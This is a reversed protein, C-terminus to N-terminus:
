PRGRARWGAGGRLRVAPTLPRRAGDRRLMCVGSVDSFPRAWHGAWKQMRGVQRSSGDVTGHRVSTKAIRGQRLCPAEWAPRSPWRAANGAREHLYGREDCACPASGEVLAVERASHREGTGADMKFIVLNDGSWRVGKLGNVGSMDGIRQDERIGKRVNEHQGVVVYIRAIAQVLMIQHGDDLPETVIDPRDRGFAASSDPNVVVAVNLYRLIQANSLHRFGAHRRKQAKVVVATKAPESGKVLHRPSRSSDATRWKTGPGSM